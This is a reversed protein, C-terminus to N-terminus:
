NKDPNVVSAWTHECVRCALNHKGFVCGCLIIEGSDILPKDEVDWMGYQLFVIKDSGCSPCNKNLREKPDLFRILYDEKEKTMRGM